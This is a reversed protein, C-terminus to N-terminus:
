NLLFATTKKLFATDAKFKFWTGMEANFAETKMLVRTVSCLTQIIEASLVEKIVFM